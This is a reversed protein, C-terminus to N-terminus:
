PSPLASQAWASTERNAEGIIAINEQDPHESADRLGRNRARNRLYAGCLHAGVCGPNARLARLSEAYWRGDNRLIPEGTALDKAPATKAGDAWLVPMGTRTHWDALNKAPDKFDQFCLIAVFPRAANVVEIPLPANAEYRDGLILHHPDYRRIADHTVQYYRTALASLGQRGMDTKLKEPDFLPGKWHNDPRTHVWMPCDTYFYGILKPDDAFRACQSRAVYDCWEEFDKSFFDPHRTENEWQHIEAFPLLHCYPIGLWQYEEFTFSPSHRHIEHGRTVVEQTWGVTNFGWARLDPAVSERLWRERSNGYKKRWIDGNPAYRLPSDDIHNLGLSFFPAGEPSFLWWRGGRQELTFFASPAPAGGRGATPRTLCSTLLSSAAIFRRRTIPRRLNM